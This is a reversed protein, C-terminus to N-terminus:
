SDMLFATTLQHILRPLNFNKNASEKGAQSLRHLTSPTTLQLIAEALAHPSSPTYLLGTQNHTVIELLAGKNPCIVALGTKQAEVVVRGFAEARSTLLLANASSFVAGRDKSFESFTVMHTLGLAKTQAQLREKYAPTANGTIQLHISLEPHTKTLIGLADIALLQNKGESIAGAMLLRLPTTTNSAPIPIPNLPQWDILCACYVLHLKKLSIYRALKKGVAKSNYAISSSLAAMLRYSTAQGLVWHLAHDEVVYEHVWWIHPINAMRAALAAVCVTSTNTIVREPDISKLVKALEKASRYYGRLLKLRLLIPLPQQTTWPDFRLYTISTVYPAVIAELPGPSPLVLHLEHGTEHLGTLAEALALEAGALGSTHSLFLLRM